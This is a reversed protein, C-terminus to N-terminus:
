LGLQIGVTIVKLPPLSNYRQNEPDLGIYDTITLLNQANMYVKMRHIHIRELCKKGFEYSLAINKLRIFSADSYAYNSSQALRYSKYAQSTTLQTFQEFPANDGVKQWHNLVEVPPNYRSRGPPSTSAFLYNNGMQKVFQFLFNLQFGEYKFTNEVGGYFKPTLNIVDIKDLLSNPTLTLNGNADRFQYVGKTPDVNELHYVKRINLPQGIIYTYAYPSQEFNPYSVLKNKNITLNISSTWSFRQMKLNTTNLVFEWGTNEVVAPLNGLVTSFGTIDPLLYSVLQNSSRNRYYSATAYIKDKFLGIEAGIELKKNVEWAYDPNSLNNPLISPSGQYPLGSTFNYLEQYLYDPIQDNGTIGYSGRLKGYNLFPLSQQILKANSFIWGIGASGFNAFRKGSGFRSSGDRRATLNLLYRDDFNYNIRGFLSNYRYQTSTITGKTITGAGALSGLLDNSTYGTAYIVTGNTKNDQFSSGAIANFKHKGYGKEFVLQPEIIWTKISSNSFNASGTLINNSPPFYNSPFTQKDEFTIQTYGFSSKIDLGPLLKYSLVSNGVLTNGSTKYKALLTAYPNAYDNNKDWNLTGDSNYGKPANPALYIQSTLDLYALNNNDSVYNGSLLAKFKQNTSTTSLNFYVSTKQDSFDGPFVTTEKHYGSGILYQTNITGGSISVQADTFKAEGGILEKQWDTYATSDWVGNLDYDFSGPSRVDNKFAEKRVQLYQQTNLLSAKRTIQGIGEYVNANVKVEGTNGKKTTILVVGNAGRTGYIATADADKLVTISEINSPSIFNFPNGGNTLGSGNNPLMQSPYPVGDIVYLPDNGNAISSRGRIEVSVSSGPVGSQQTVIMGPVRGELALLPNSVPQQEIETSKVTSVNGVQLRKSTQGYAIVQIEDLSSVKTKMSLSLESRGNLNTEFTEVTVASFVLTANNAINNLTFEGNDNTVGVTKGGKISISVGAVPEGKENTIRGRVTPPRAPDLRPNFGETLLNSKKESKEKVTIVKGNLSYTLADQTKFIEKLAEEVSVNNLNAAVPKGKEQVLRPEFFLGYNSQSQITKLVKALPAGNEKITVQATSRATVQLLGLVIFLATLKMIRACQTVPGSNKRPGFATLTM